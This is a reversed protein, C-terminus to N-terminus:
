GTNERVPLAELESTWVGIEKMMDEMPHQPRMERHLCAWISHGWGQNKENGQEDYCYDYLSAFEDLIVEEVDACAWWFLDNCNVLLKVDGLFDMKNLRFWIVEDDTLKQIKDSLKPDINEYFKEILDFCALFQMQCDNWGNGYADRDKGDYKAPYIGMQEFISWFRRWKKADLENDTM